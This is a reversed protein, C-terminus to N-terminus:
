SAVKAAQVRRQGWAAILYADVLGLHPKRGKSGDPIFTLEPQLRRAAEVNRDKATAKTGMLMDKTWTAPPVLAYPLRHAILLGQLTGYGEGYNFMGVAGNKPMAQAKELFVFSTTPSFQSLARDVERIDTLTWFCIDGWEDIACMAGTKGPDIGITIM